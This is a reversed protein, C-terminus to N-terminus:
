KKKGKALEKIGAEGPKMKNKNAVAYFVQKGKTKGYSKSMNKMVEDGHGSFYKSIPM